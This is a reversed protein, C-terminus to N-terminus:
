KKLTPFLVKIAKIPYLAGILIIACVGCCAGQLANGFISLTAGGFGYLICEFLFYGLVMFLEGLTAAVSRALVDTKENKFINKMMKWVFYALFAELGKIFFTAPAYITFGSLIDALASGIAAAFSGYIPGLCWGSLLVFVDGTNFYGNPLPVTLLISGIYCLASFLAAFAINKASSISHLCITKM